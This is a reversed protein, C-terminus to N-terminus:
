TTTLTGRKANSFNASASGRRVVVIFLTPSAIAMPLDKESANIFASRDRSRLSAIKEHGTILAVSNDDRICAIRIGVSYLNCCTCFAIHAPAVMSCTYSAVFISRHYRSCISTILSCADTIANGPSSELSSRRM